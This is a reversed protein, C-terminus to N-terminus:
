PVEPLRREVVSGNPLVVVYVYSWAPFRVETVSACPFVVFLRYSIALLRISTVAASPVFVDNVYELPSRQGEQPAALPPSRRVSMVSAFLLVM